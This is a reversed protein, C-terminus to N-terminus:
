IGLPEADIRIKLGALFTRDSDSLHIPTPDPRPIRPNTQRGRTLALTSAQVQAYTSLDLCILVDHGEREIQSAIGEFRDSTGVVENVLTDLERYCKSKRIVASAADKLQQILRAEEAASTSEVQAAKPLAFIGEQTRVRIKVHPVFSNFVSRGAAKLEGVMAQVQPDDDIESKLALLVEYFASDQQLIEEAAREMHELRSQMTKRDVM